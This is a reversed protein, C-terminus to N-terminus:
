VSGKDFQSPHYMSVYVCRDVFVITICGPFLVAVTGQKAEHTGLFGGPAYITYMCRLGAVYM